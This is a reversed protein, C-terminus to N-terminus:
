LTYSPVNRNINRTQHAPTANTLAYPDDAFGFSRRENPPTYIPQPTAMSPSTGGSYGQQADAALRKQEYYYRAWRHTKYHVHPNRIETRERQADQPKANFLDDLSKNRKAEPISQVRIIKGDLMHVVRNALNKQSVDHTVMVMTMDEKRNLDMLLKLVTFTNESDLDGTPEDLILIDPRNAIARAITVRQQEGGSLTQPFSDLRHGMGVRKLLRVALNHRQTTDLKGALILPLEVNEFATMSSILNFTQFCFGLKCLRINAVEHDPTHRGVRKGCISLEGKSPQDITGIINLLSTKGSGSKGLIVVFEGKKIKLSVGRLAPIGEYGLLYTKHVNKIEVMTTSEEEIEEDIFPGDILEIRPHTQDDVPHPSISVRPLSNRPNSSAVPARGM